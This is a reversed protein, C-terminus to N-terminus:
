SPRRSGASRAPAASRRRGPTATPPASATLERRVSSGRVDRPGRHSLPRLDTVSFRQEGAVFTIEAGNMRAETLVTVAGGRTLTGSLTQFTQTLKLEGDGLRWDGQVKAPIIWKFARCWSMCAGGADITEDEIDIVDMKERICQMAAIHIGVGHAGLRLSFLVPPKPTQVTRGVELWRPLSILYFLPACLAGSVVNYEGSM